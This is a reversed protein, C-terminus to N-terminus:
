LEQKKLQKLPCRIMLGARLCALCTFTSIFHILGITALGAAIDMMNAEAVGSNFFRHPFKEEFKSTRTSHSADADLVVVKEDERGLEVLTDCFTNGIAIKAAM